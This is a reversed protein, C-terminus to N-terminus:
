ACKPFRLHICLYVSSSRLYRKKLRGHWLDSPATNGRVICNALVHSVVVLRKISSSNWVARCRFSLQEPCSAIPATRFQCVKRTSIADTRDLSTVKWLNDILWNYSGSQFTCKFNYLTDNLLTAFLTNKCVTAGGQGHFHLLM